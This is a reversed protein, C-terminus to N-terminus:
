VTTSRKTRDDYREDTVTLIMGGRVCVNAGKTGGTDKHVTRREREREEDGGRWPSTEFLSSSIMEIENRHDKEDRDRKTKLEM